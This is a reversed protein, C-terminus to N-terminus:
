ARLRRARANARKAEGRWAHAPPFTSHAAGAAKRGSEDLAASDRIARVRM